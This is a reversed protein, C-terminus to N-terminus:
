SCRKVVTGDALVTRDSSGDLLREIAKRVDERKLLALTAKGLIDM